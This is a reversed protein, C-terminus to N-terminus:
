TVSEKRKRYTVIAWVHKRGVETQEALETTTVGQQYQQRMWRVTRADLKAMPPDEGKPKPPRNGRNKAERDRANDGHTGEWLHAPNCCLGYDCSHCLVTEDSLRGFTLIYAVRHAKQVREGFWFMGYRLEPNNGSRTSAATWPWCEDAGRVEVKSWFREM